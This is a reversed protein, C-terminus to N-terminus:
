PYIQAGKTGDIIIGNRLKAVMKAGTYKTYAGVQKGNVQVKFRNPITNKSYNEKTTANNTPYIQKSNTGDVVIGGIRDAHNCAGTYKTYAGKQAGNLMVKFRNQITNKTYDEGSATQNPLDANIYPTPDVWDFKSTNMFSNAGWFDSANVIYPKKYKRVEFHLHIGTSHGTNGVVGIVDGRKVVDGTKVRLERMHGYGTVYNDNHLIWVANGYGDGNGAYLVTGDSHAVINSQIYRNDKQPVLDVGQAYGGNKVAKVHQAYTQTVAYGQVAFVRNGINM